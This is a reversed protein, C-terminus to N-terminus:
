IRCTSSFTVKHAIKGGNGVASLPSLALANRFNSSSGCEVWQVIWHLLFVSDLSFPIMAVEIGIETSITSTAIMLCFLYDISVQSFSRRSSQKPTNFYSIFIQHHFLLRQRNIQDSRSVYSLLSQFISCEANILISSLWWFSYSTKNKYTKKWRKEKTWQLAMVINHLTLKRTLHKWTASFSEIRARLLNHKCCISVTEKKEDFCQFHISNRWNIFDYKRARLM